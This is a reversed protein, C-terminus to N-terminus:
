AGERMPVVNGAPSAGTVIGEVHRAWSDLARKKEADRPFRNYTRRVGSLVHNLVRDIVEDSFGLSQLGTACTRRLDHPTWHPLPEAEGANGGAAEIDERRIELIAKDLKGKFKSWGGLECPELYERGDREVRRWGAFVIETGNHRPCDDLISQALGSIPVLHGQGNKSRESPLKWGDDILESRVLGAAEGRRQGTLLLFRILHGYPYGIRGTGRWVDRLEDATLVRDRPTEDLTLKRFNPVSDIREEDMAYVFIPRILALLRNAAVPSTAAKKMLVEKIDARTIGAVPLHGIEPLIDRDLKRQLEPGSKRKGGIEAMYLGAIEAFTDRRATHAERRATREKEEPDIGRAADRMMDRAKERAEALGMLDAGGIRLRRQKGNIRTMVFWTRKGGYSVRLAFGPLVTDWIELQGTAPPKRNINRDTLRARM